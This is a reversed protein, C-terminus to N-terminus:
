GACPIPVIEVCYDCGFSDDALIEGQWEGEQIRVVAGAHQCDVPEEIQIALNEGLETDTAYQATGRAVRNRGGIVFVVAFRKSDYRALVNIPGKTSL